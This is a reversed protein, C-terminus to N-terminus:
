SANSVRQKDLIIGRHIYPIGMLRNGGDDGGSNDDTGRSLTTSDDDDDDPSLMKM